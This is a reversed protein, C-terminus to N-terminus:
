VVSTLKSVMVKWHYGVDSDNLLIIAGIQKFGLALLGISDRYWIGIVTCHACRGHM